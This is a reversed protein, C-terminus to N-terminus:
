KVHMEAASVGEKKPQWWWDVDAFPDSDPHKSQESALKRMLHVWNLCKDCVYKETPYNFSGDDYLHMKVDPCNESNLYCVECYIHEKDKKDKGM